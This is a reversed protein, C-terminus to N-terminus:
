ENKMRYEDYVDKLLSANQYLKKLTIDLIKVLKNEDESTFEYTVLDGFAVVFAKVNNLVPEPLEKIYRQFKDEFITEEEDTLIQNRDLEM